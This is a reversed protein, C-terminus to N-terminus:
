QVHKLHRRRDNNNNDMWSLVEGGGGGGGWLCSLVPARWRHLSYKCFNIEAVNSPSYSYHHSTSQTNDSNQPHHDPQLIFKQVSVYDSRLSSLFITTVVYLEDYASFDCASFLLPSAEVKPDFASIGRSTEGNPPPPPPPPPPPSCFQTVM